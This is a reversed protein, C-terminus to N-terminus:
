RSLRWGALRGLAVRFLSRGARLRSRVSRGDRNAVAIVDRSFIVPDLVAGADGKTRLRQGIRAVVRHLRLGRASRFLVVDGVKVTGPVTLDAFSGHAFVPEMCHGTVTLRGHGTVSLLERLAMEIFTDSATHECVSTVPRALSADTVALTKDRITPDDGSSANSLPRDPGVGYPPESADCAMPCLIAPAALHACRPEM